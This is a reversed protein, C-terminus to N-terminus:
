LVQRLIEVIESTGPLFRDLRFLTITRESAFALVAIVYGVTPLPNELAYEWTSKFARALAELRTTGRAARRHERFHHLAQERGAEWWGEDPAEVKWRLLQKRFEGYGQLVSNCESCERLHAATAASAEPNDEGLLHLLLEEETYHRQDRRM